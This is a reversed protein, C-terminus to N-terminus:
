GHILVRTTPSRLGGHSLASAIAVDPPDLFEPYTLDTGGGKGNIELEKTVPTARRDKGAVISLRIIVPRCEDPVDRFWWTLRATHSDIRVARLGPTPPVVVAKKTWGGGGQPVSVWDRQCSASPEVRYATPLAPLM